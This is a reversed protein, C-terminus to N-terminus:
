HFKIFIILNPHIIIVNIKKIDSTSIEELVRFCIDEIEQYREKEFNNEAYYMGSQVIALIRKASELINKNISSM